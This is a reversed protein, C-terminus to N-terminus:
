LETMCDLASGPLAKLIRGQRDLVTDGHKVLLRNPYANPRLTLVIDFAEAERGLGLLDSVILLAAATSRSIGAFCHILLHATAMKSDKLVRRGFNIIQLAHDECPPLVFTGVEEPAFDDINVDTITIRKYVGTFWTPQAPPDDIDLLCLMHSVGCGKHIDLESWGCITIQFPLNEM